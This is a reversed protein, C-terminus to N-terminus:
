AALTIIFFWYCLVMFMFVGILIVKSSNTIAAERVPQMSLV